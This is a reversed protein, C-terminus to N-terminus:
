IVDVVGVEEVGVETGLTEREECAACAEIVVREIWTTDYRSVEAGVIAVEEAATTDVEEGEEVAADSESPSVVCLRFRIMIRDVTSPESPKIIAASTAKKSSLCLRIRGPRVTVGISSSSIALQLRPRLPPDSFGNLGSSWSNGWTGSVLMRVGDDPHVQVADGVEGSLVM